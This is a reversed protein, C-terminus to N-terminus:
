ALLPHLFCALLWSASDVNGAESFHKILLKHFSLCTLATNAWHPLFKELLTKLLNDALHGQIQRLATEKKQSHFSVDVAIDLSVLCEVIPLHDKM